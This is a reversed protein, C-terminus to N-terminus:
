QPRALRDVDLAAALEQASIRTGVLGRGTVVEAISRGSLQAEATIAAAEAYGLYRTLGTVVAPSSEALRRARDTDVVIGVVCRDALLRTAATLLEPAALLAHAMVPV